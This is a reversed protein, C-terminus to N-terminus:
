IEIADAYVLREYLRTATFDTPRNPDDACHSEYEELLIRQRHTQWRSLTLATAWITMGNRFDAPAVEITAGDGLRSDRAPFWGIDHERDSERLQEQVSIRVVSGGRGRQSGKYTFGYVALKIKGRCRDVWQLSAWRDPALQLFDALVVPSLECGPLSHWQFRALALRVFPFYSGAPDMEIDCFWLKREADFAPQFGAVSVRLQPDETKSDATEALSLGSGVMPVGDVLAVNKFDTVAPMRPPPTSAWLPDMGWRSVLPALLDPLASPRRSGFASKLRERTGKGADDCDPWVIAGLLEGEGSSFWPRKLYVRIGGGWRVSVIEDKCETREWRFAPMVYAVEPKAPRASSRIRAKFTTGPIAQAEHHYYEQYRPAATVQYIVQRHKTDRFDHQLEPRSGLDIRFNQGDSEQHLDIHFAPGSQNKVVPGTQQPDDDETETWSGAVDLRSTSPAHCIVHGGPKAFTDGNHERDVIPESWAPAMLPAKVAHVLTLTRTPTLMCHLGRQAATHLTALQENDLQQQAPDQLANWLFLLDLDSPMSSVEITATEGPPVLVELIRRKVGGVSEIRDQGDKGGSVWSPRGAALQVVLPLADPWQGVQYFEHAVDGVHRQFHDFLRLTCGTAMPDPYYPQSPVIPEETSDLIASRPEFYANSGAPANVSVAPAPQTTPAPPATPCPQDAHPPPATDPVVKPFSGDDNLRVGAFAGPLLEGSGDARDFRGHLEAFEQGVRPPVLFRRAPDCSSDRKVLRDIQEGPSCGLDVPGALLVVPPLVPEHRAYTLDPSKGQDNRPGGLTMSDMGDCDSLRLGNGALDVTRCRVRYTAGFRLSPLSEDAVEFCGKVAQQDPEPVSCHNMPRDGRGVSLSWNEWRFLSDRLQLDTKSDSPRSAALHVVGESSIEGRPPFRRPSSGDPRTVEFHGTRRCLSHWKGLESSWVDPRYGLLLDEAYLLQKGEEIDQRASEVRQAAALLLKARDKMVLSIGASRLTAAPETAPSDTTRYAPARALDEATHMAKLGSGDVDLIELHFLYGDDFQDRDPGPAADKADLDLLGAAIYGGDSPALHDPVFRASGNSAAAVVYATRPTVPRFGSIPQEPAVSVARTLGSKPVPNRGLDLDFALGLPRLLDPETMVMSLREHFDFGSEADFGKAAQLVKVTRSDPALRRHFLAFRVATRIEARQEATEEPDCAIRATWDVGPRDIELLARIAQRSLLRELSPSPFLRGRSRFREHPDILRAYSLHIGELPSEPEWEKVQRLVEDLVAQAQDRASRTAADANSPLFLSHSQIHKRLVGTPLAAGAGRSADSAAAISLSAAEVALRAYSQRVRGGVTRTRYSRLQQGDFSSMSPRRVKTQDGFLTDWLENDLYRWDATVLFSTETGDVHFAVRFNAVRGLTEPWKRFAQPLSPSTLVPSIVVSLRNSGDYGNPLALWSITGQDTM